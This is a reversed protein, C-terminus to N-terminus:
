GGLRRRWLLRCHHQSNGCGRVEINHRLRAAERGILEKDKSWKVTGLARVSAPCLEAFRGLQRNVEPPNEYAHSFYIQALLLHPLGFGPSLEIAHQLNAIAEKTQRGMQAEAALYLFVPDNPHKALLQDYEAILDPRNIEMGGLRANQYAEHLAIDSPAVALVKRLLQLKLERRQAAPLHADDPVQLQERVARTSATPECNQSLSSQSAFCAAVLCLLVLSPRMVVGLPVGHYSRIM